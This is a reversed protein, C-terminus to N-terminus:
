RAVGNIPFFQLLGAWKHDPLGRGNETPFTGNMKLSPSEVKCIDVTPLMNHPHCGIRCLVVKMYLKFKYEFNKM